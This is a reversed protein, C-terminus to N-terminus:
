GGPINAKAFADPYKNRLEALTLTKGHRNVFKDIPLDGRRFLAGRTPGLVDDQFAASQRGLWDGYNTDPSVYGINKEAWDNAAQRIRRRRQRESLNRWNDGEKAKATKRFNSRRAPTSATSTVATRHPPVVRLPNIVAEMQSRCNFHAPPRANSPKLLPINKPFDKTFPVGKGDRASCIRTTVGDLIARWILGTVVDNEQWTGERVKNTIFNIASANIAKLMNFSQNTIGPFVRTGTVSRLIEDRSLGDTIGITITDRLRRLDSNITDRLHAETTKGRWTDGLMATVVPNTLRNAEFTDVAMSSQLLEAQIIAEAKAFDRVNDLVDKQIARWQDRRLQLIADLLKKLSKQKRAAATGTEGFSDLRRRLAEVMAGDAERLLQRLRRADGEKLRELDIQHRTLADSLREVATAM